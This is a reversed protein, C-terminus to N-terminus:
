SRCARRSRREVPLGRTKVVPTITKEDFGPTAANKAEKVFIEPVQAADAVAYARGKGWTALNKLLEPDASPGVAVTSLTIRAETM